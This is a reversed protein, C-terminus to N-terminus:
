NYLTKIHLEMCSINTDHIFEWIFLRSISFNRSHQPCHRGFRTFTASPWILENSPQTKICSWVAVKICQMTPSLQEYMKNSLMTLFLIKKLAEQKQFGKCPLETSSSQCCMIIRSRLIWSSYLMFCFGVQKIVTHNLKRLANISCPAFSALCFTNPKQWENLGLTPALFIGHGWFAIPM